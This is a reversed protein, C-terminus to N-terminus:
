GGTLTREKTPVNGRRREKEDWAFTKFQLVDYQGSM